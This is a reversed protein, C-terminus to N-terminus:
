IKVAIRAFKLESKSLAHTRYSPMFIENGVVLAHRPTFIIDNNNEAIVKKTMKGTALDISIGYANSSKRFNYVTKIKDGYGAIVNNSSHDNVLLVLANNTLLSTYSSYFPMGGGKAFYNGYDISTYGFNSQ